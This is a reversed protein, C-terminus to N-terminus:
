MARQSAGSAFGEAFESDPNRLCKFDMLPENPRPVPFTLGVILVGPTVGEPTSLGGDQVKIVQFVARELIERSIILLDGDRIVNGLGDRM